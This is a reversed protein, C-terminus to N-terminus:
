NLVAVATHNKEDDGAFGRGLYPKVGLGSFYNGSVMEGLAEEPRDGIRIAVKQGSLPAFAMLGSFVKHQGRLQEYVPLPLSTDGYGSQSTGWPQTDYHLYVLQQPDRVSLFRLLVANMVSFVATNAGIGLALTLIATATFAPSKKLQRVAFKLDAWMSEVRPWQWAERGREEILAANGFARRAAQEAEERSMGERMFQETKEELHERMEEALDGYLDRRRFIRAFWSM